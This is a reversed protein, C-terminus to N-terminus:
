RSTACLSKGSVSQDLAAPPSSSSSPQRRARLKDEIVTVHAREAWLELVSKGSANSSAMPDKMEAGAGNTANKPKTTGEMKAAKAQAAEATENVALLNTGCDAAPCRVSGDDLSQCKWSTCVGGFNCLEANMCDYLAEDSMSGTGQQLCELRLEDYCGCDITVYPDQCGDLDALQNRSSSLELLSARSILRAMQSKVVDKRDEMCEKWESCQPDDGGMIYDPICVCMWDHDHLPPPGVLMDECAKAHICHSEAETRQMENLGSAQVGLVQCSWPWTDYHDTMGPSCSLMCSAWWNNKKYCTHTEASICCHTHLCSYTMGSQTCGAQTVHQNAEDRDIDSLLADSGIVAQMNESAPDEWHDSSNIDTAMQSVTRRVLNKAIGPPQVDTKVAWVLGLSFGSSVVSLLGLNMAVAM